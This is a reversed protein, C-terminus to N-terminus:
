GHRIFSVVAKILSLLMSVINTKRWGRGICLLEKEHANVKSISPLPLLKKVLSMPRCRNLPKRMNISQVASFM